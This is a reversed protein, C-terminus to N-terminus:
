TLIPILLEVKTGAAQNDASYLDFINVPKVRDNGILLRLREETYRIGTSAMEKGSQEQEKKVQERGVGNDEVTVRLYQQSESFKVRLMGQEKGSLGYKIANEIFPQIVLPPILM